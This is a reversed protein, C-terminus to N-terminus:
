RSIGGGAHGEIRFTDGTSWYMAREVVINVGNMTEVIASASHTGQDSPLYDNAKVTARRCAGVTLDIPTLTGDAGVLTVRVQSAIQNPNAILIFNEFNSPGWAAGEPLFWSAQPMAVGMVATAGSRSNFGESKWYISREVVIGEGGATRVETSFASQDQMGEVDREVNITLRSNAGVVVQKEVPAGSISSCPRCWPM